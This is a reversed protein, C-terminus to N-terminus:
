FEGVLLNDRQHSVSLVVSAYLHTHIIFIVYKTLAGGRGGYVVAHAHVDADRLADAAEEEGGDEDDAQALNATIRKKKPKNIHIHIIKTNWNKARWKAQSWPM